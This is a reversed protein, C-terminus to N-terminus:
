VITQHYQDHMAAHPVPAFPILDSETSSSNVSLGKEKKSPLALSALFTISLNSRMFTITLESFHLLVTKSFIISIILLSVLFRYVLQASLSNNSLPPPISIQFLAACIALFIKLLVTSVHM